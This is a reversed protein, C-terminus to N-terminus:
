LFKSLLSSFALISSFSARSEELIDFMLTTCFGEGANRELPLFIKQLVAHLEFEVRRKAALFRALFQPVVARSSDM